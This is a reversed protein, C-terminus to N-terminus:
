LCYKDSICYGSSTVGARAGLMAVRAWKEGRRDKVGKHFVKGRWSLVDMIIIFANERHAAGALRLSGCRLLSTPGSM